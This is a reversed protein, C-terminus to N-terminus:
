TIDGVYVQDPAMVSSAFETEFLRPAVPRDHNSDTTQVKYRPNIVSVIENEHMLRAIRKENVLLGESRLQATVRPSGYTERSAEHISIVRPLIERNEKDRNSEPRRVWDYFGSRSLKLTKCALKVAVGDATNLAEVLRYKVETSGELFRGCGEELHSRRGQTNRGLCEVDTQPIFIGPQRRCKKRGSDWKKVDFVSPSIGPESSLRLGGFGM